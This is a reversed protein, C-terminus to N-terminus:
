ITRTISSLQITIKFAIFVEMCVTCYLGYELKWPSFTVQQEQTEQPSKVRMIQFHVSLILANYQASHSLIPNNDNAPPLTLVVDAGLMFPLGPFAPQAAKEPSCNDSSLFSSM